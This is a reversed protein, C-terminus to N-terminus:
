EAEEYLGDAEEDLEVVEDESGSAEDESDVTEEDLLDDLVSQVELLAARLEECESALEARTPRAM